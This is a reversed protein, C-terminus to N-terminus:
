ATQGTKGSPAKRKEELWVILGFYTGAFVCVGVVQSFWGNWEWFNQNCTLLAALISIIANKM